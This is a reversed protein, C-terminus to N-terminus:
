KREGERKEVGKDSRKMNINGDREKSISIIM